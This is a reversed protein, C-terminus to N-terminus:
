EVITAGTGEEPTETKPQTTKKQIVVERDIDKENAADNPKAQKSQIIKDLFFKKIVDKFFFAAAIGIILLVVLIIKVIPPKTSKALSDGGIIQISPEVKFIGFPDKSYFNNYKFM